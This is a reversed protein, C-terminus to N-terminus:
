LYVYMLVCKKFLALALRVTETWTLEDFDEGMKNKNEVLKKKGGLFGNRKGGNSM